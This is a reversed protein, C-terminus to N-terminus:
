KVKTPQGVQQIKNKNMRYKNACRNSTVQKCILLIVMAHTMSMRVEEVNVVKKGHLYQKLHMFTGLETNVNMIPNDEHM